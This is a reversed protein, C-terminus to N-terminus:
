ENVLPYALWETISSTVGKKTEFYDPFVAKNLIVKEKRNSGQFDPLSSYSYRNVYDFLKEPNTHMNSKWDHDILKAPNLHIYSFLYKLYVDTDAHRAKFAGEFLSGTREYKKNFYMSYSTLLKKMFSSVGREKKEKVLIHFHNPMLCYAGIDVLTEGRQREFHDDVELERFILPINGNCLYLLAVFREYDSPASFITRKDTGRNYTHYYEDIAFSFGREM